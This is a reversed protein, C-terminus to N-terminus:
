ELFTILALHDLLTTFCGFNPINWFTGSDLNILLLHIM